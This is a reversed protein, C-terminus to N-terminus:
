SGHGKPEPFLCISLLETHDRGPPEFATGIKTTYWRGQASFWDARVHLLM